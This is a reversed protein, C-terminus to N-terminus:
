DGRRLLDLFSVTHGFLTDGLGIVETPAERRCARRLCTSFIGGGGTDLSAWFAVTGKANIVPYGASVDQVLDDPRRFSKFEGRTDAVRILRNGRAVFIAEGGSKLSAWFAVQGKDNISPFGFSAFRGSTDAIKKIVGGQSHGYEHMLTFTRAEVRWWTNIAILPAHEDWLSFGRISDKGMRFLFVFVGHAQVLRRSEAFAESAGPWDAQTEADFGLAARTKTAVSESSEDARPKPLYPVSTGTQARLWSLLRQLRGAERIHTQEVANLVDRTSNPPHRFQIPATRTEPARPLLFFAFPRHLVSALKRAETLIPQKDGEQWARLTSPSVRVKRAVEAESMGSQAVAWEVVAPTVPVATAKGM